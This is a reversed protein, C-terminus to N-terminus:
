EPFLLCRATQYVRTLAAGHDQGPDATPDSHPRQGAADREQGVLVQLGWSSLAPRGGFVASAITVSFAFARMAPSREDSDSSAATASIASNKLRRIGASCGEARGAFSDV